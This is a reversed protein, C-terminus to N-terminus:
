FLEIKREGPPPKRLLTEAYSREERAITEATAMTTVMRRCFADGSAPLFLVKRMWPGLFDAALLPIGERALWEKAFEANRVGISM